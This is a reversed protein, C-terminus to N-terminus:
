SEGMRRLGDWVEDDQVNFPDRYLPIGFDNTATPHRAANGVLQGLRQDPNAYWARRLEALMPEIRDVPRM